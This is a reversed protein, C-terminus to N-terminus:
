LEEGLKLTEQYHNYLKQYTERKKDSISDMKEKIENLTAEPADNFKPSYYNRLIRVLREELNSIKAEPINEIAYGLFVPIIARDKLQYDGLFYGLNTIGDQILKYVETKNEELLKHLQNQDKFKNNYIEMIIKEVDIGQGDLLLATAALNKATEDKKLFTIFKNNDIPNIKRILIDEDVLQTMLKRKHITQYLSRDDKKLYNISNGKYDKTVLKILEKNSKNSYFGGEKRKRILVKKKVLPNILERECIIAYLGGSINKFDSISNGKYDKTVLKILEKNSKDAYSVYGKNKRLLIKKNILPNILKRKLIIQYLGLERNKLDSIFSDKYTKTVIDILKKNSKNSYFGNVKKKRILIGKSILQNILGKKFILKYLTRDNKELNRISNGKYNKNVIEILEDNLKNMWSRYKRM